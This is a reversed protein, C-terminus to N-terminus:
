FAFWHAAQRDLSLTRDPPPLERYYWPLNSYRHLLAWRLCRVQLEETLEESRTGYARLLAGLLGPESRTVFLGVSALEYEPHGTMAPEFDLLGTLRWAGSGDREVFLHQRMVETHLLVPREPVDLEPPVRDLLDPIQELLREDLGLRRQRDVCGARQAEVFARWDDVPGPLAAVPLDHLIRLARGLHACLRERQEPPIAPWCDSLPRGALREMLIWPWGDQQGAAIVGPTPIPLRRHLLRLVGLERAHFEPEYPPFLKLIAAEGIAFVPVSGDDVPHIAPEPTTRILDAPLAGAPGPDDFGSARASALIGAAASRLRVGEKMLSVLEDETHIPPLLTM